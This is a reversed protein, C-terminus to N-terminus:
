ISTFTFFNAATDSLIVTRPFKHRPTPSAKWSIGAQTRAQWAVIESSNNQERGRWEM